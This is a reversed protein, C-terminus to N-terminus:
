KKSFVVPKRGWYFNTFLGLFRLYKEKRIFDNMSLDKARRVDFGLLYTVLGNHVASYIEAQFDIVRFGDENSFKLELNSM